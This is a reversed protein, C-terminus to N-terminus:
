PTLEVVLEFNTRSGNAWAVNWLWLPVFAYRLGQATQVEVLFLGNRGVVDVQGYPNAALTLGTATTVPVVARNPLAIRGQADTTGTIEAVTDLVGTDRDKQYIRVAANQIPAGNERLLLSCAAPLAFLYEGYHGRRYGQTVNMGFVDHSSYYTDGAHPAISGGGMLGPDQASFGVGNVLNEAEGLDMQYGDVVGLQHTLEHVLARDPHTQYNVYETLSVLPFGWQGDVERDVPLGNQLWGDPVITLKDLRVRQTGGDQAFAYISQAFCENMWAIQSSLWDEASTSGFANPVADLRDYVSQEIHFGFTMADTAIECRDNHPTVQRVGDQPKAEFSVLHRGTQWNWPLDAVVQAEQPLSPLALTAVISGDIRWTGTLPGTERLGSNKVHARFTVLEGPDPWRKETETGPTLSPLNNVPDYDVSYRLYRPFRELFTVDVDPEHTSPAFPREVGYPTFALGDIWLTFGYGWTDAQIEIWDVQQLSPQGHSTRQWTASGALPVDIHVWQDRAPTLWDRDPAYEFWAFTGTGLRVIPLNGQFDNQNSARVWFELHANTSVDWRAKRSWPVQVACLFGAGTDWRISSSGAVRLQDDDAVSSQSTEDDATATWDAANREAFDEFQPGIVFDDIPSFFGPMGLGQGYLRLGVLALDRPIPLSTTGTGGTMAGPITLLITPDIHLVGFPTVWAQTLQAVGLAAVFIQSGPSDFRISTTRGIRFDGGFTLSPTQAALPLAALLALPLPRLLSM